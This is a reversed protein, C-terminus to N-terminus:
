RRHLRSAGGSVPAAGGVSSRDAALARASPGCLLGVSRRRGRCAKAVASRIVPVFRIARCPFVNDVPLRRAAVLSFSAPTSPPAPLSLPPVRPRGRCLPYDLSSTSCSRRDIFSSVNTAPTTSSNQLATRTRRLSSSLIRKRWTM